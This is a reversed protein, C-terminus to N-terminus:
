RLRRYLPERQGIRQYASQHASHLLSEGIGLGLCGFPALSDHLLGHTTRQGLDDFYMMVNRCSVLHFENFSADTLLNHVGFVVGELLSPAVRLSGHRPALYHSLARVGGSERYNQEYEPLLIPDIDGTQAQQLVTASMDTAYVRCREALGAEHLLILYTFVEQGTSCGAVWLRSSPYTGLVPLLRRVEAFYSPDRFMATVHLTMDAQVRARCAPDQRAKDLLETLSGANEQSMRPLLRRLLAPKQYRSFDIGILPAMGRIFDSLEAHHVSPVPSM